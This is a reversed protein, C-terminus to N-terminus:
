YLASLSEPLEEALTQVVERARDDFSDTALAEEIRDDDVLRPCVPM